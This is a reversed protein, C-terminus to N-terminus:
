PTERTGRGAARRVREVVRLWSARLGAAPWARVAADLERDADAPRGERFRRRARRLRFEAMARAALPLLDPFRERCRRLNHELCRETAAEMRGRDARLQDGHVRVRASPVPDYIVRGRAAVRMWLDWDEVPVLSADFPGAALLAERRAVVSATEMLNHRFLHRAVLGSPTGRGSPRVELARGEGDMYEVPGYVLSAGPDAELLAVQRAKAGPLWADDSDLFAVFAGRALELTRNRAAAAGANPQREVRVRDAWAALVRPTEDTSGDDVVIHEVAGLSQDRASRLAEELYRVRNWTATLVSVRPATAPV